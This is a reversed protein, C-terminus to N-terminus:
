DSTPSYGWRKQTSFISCDIKSDFRLVYRVQYNTEPSMLIAFSTLHDCSCSIVDDTAGTQRCNKSDLDLSNSNPNVAVCTLDVM